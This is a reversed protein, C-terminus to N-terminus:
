KNVEDYERSWWQSIKKDIKDLLDKQLMTEGNKIEKVYFLRDEEIIFQILEKVAAEISKDHMTTINSVIFNLKDILVKKITPIDKVKTIVFAV